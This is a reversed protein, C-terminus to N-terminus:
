VYKNRLQPGVLELIPGAFQTRWTDASGVEHRLRLTYEIRDDSDDLDDFVIGPHPPTISLTNSTFHYNNQISCMYHIYFKCDIASM